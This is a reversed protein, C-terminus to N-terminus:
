FNVGTFIQLYVSSNRWTEVLFTELSIILMIKGPSFVSRLAYYIRGDLVFKKVRTYWGTKQWPIIFMTWYGRQNPQNIFTNSRGQILELIELCKKLLYQKLAWKINESFWCYIWWSSLDSDWAHPFCKKILLKKDNQRSVFDHKCPVFKHKSPFVLRQIKWSSSM